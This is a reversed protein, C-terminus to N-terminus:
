TPCLNFVNCKRVRWALMRQRLYWLQLLPSCATNELRLHWAMLFKLHRFTFTTYIDLNFSTEFIYGFIYIIRVASQFWSNSRVTHWGLSPTKQHKELFICTWHGTVADTVVLREAFFSSFATKQKKITLKASKHRGEERLKRKTFIFGTICHKGIPRRKGTFMSFGSSYIFKKLQQDQVNAFENPSKAWMYPCLSRAGLSYVDFFMFLFAKTPVPVILVFLAEVSCYHFGSPFTSYDSLLLLFSPESDPM